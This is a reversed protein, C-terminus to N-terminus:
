NLSWERVTGDRDLCLLIQSNPLYAFGGGYHLKTGKPRQFRWKFNREWDWVMMKGENVRVILKKGDDLWQIDSLNCFRDLMSGDNKVKLVECKMSESQKEDLQWLVISKNIILAFTNFKPNWTFHRIWHKIQPEELELRCLEKATAISYISLRTPTGGSLLVRHDDIFCGAWNQGGTPGITHKCEGKTASWIKHTEDWSATVIARDNPSWSAWMIADTHGKLRFVEVMKVMDFVVVQPLDNPSWMANQTTMGHVIYIFRNGEHSFYHSGFSPLHGDLHPLYQLRNELDVRELTNAFSSGISEIASIDLEHHRKLDQEIADVAKDTLYRIAFPVANHHLVHGDRDLHWVVIDGDCGSVMAGESILWYKAESARAETFHFKWINTMHAKLEATQRRTDVEYIRIVANTAVSVFKYDSSVGLKANPVNSRNPDGQALKFSNQQEEGWYLPRSARPAWSATTKGCQFELDLNLEYEQLFRERSMSPM